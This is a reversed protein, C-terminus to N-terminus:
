GIISDLSEEDKGRKAVEVDDFSELVPLPDFLSWAPLASLLSAILSGGRLLWIM